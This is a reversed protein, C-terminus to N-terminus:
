GARGTGGQLEALLAPLEAFDAFAAQRPIEDVPLHRYGETFLFFPVGAAQATAGDVQSDGVYALTSMECELLGALHRLPGPLVLVGVEPFLASLRDGELM